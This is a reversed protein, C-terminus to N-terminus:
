LGFHKAVKEALEELTIDNNEFIVDAYEELELEKNEICLNLRKQINEENDGRERMRNELTELSSRLYVVSVLDGLKEKIQEVGHKEVVAYVVDYAELKSYVEETSLCYYNGNYFNSELKDLKQFEEVSVFHYSIEPIEGVRMPRTTHSVLEPIGRKQLRKGLETKGVGSPGMLLIVTKKTRKM